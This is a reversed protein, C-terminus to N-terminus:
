IKVHCMTKFNDIFIHPGGASSPGSVSLLQNQNATFSHACLLAPTVDPQKVEEPNRSQMEQLLLRRTTVRASAGCVGGPANQRQAESSFLCFTTRLSVARVNVNSLLMWLALRQSNLLFVSLSILRSQAEICSITKNQKCCMLATWAPFDNSIVVEGIPGTTETELSARESVSSILLASDGRASINQWSENLKKLSPNNLGDYSETNCCCM